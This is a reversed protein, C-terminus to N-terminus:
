KIARLIALAVTKNIRFTIAGVICSLCVDIRFYHLFNVFGVPWSLDLNSFIAPLALRSFVYVVAAVSVASILRWLVIFVAAM